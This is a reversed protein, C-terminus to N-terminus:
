DSSYTGSVTGVAAINNYEVIVSSNLERLLDTMDLGPENLSATGPSSPSKLAFVYVTYTHTGSPPYPGVYTYPDASYEGSSVSNKSDSVCWHLWNDASEDIMLIVYNSCGEFPAEWSLAPSLNGHNKGIQKAWVGNSLDASTVEFRPLNEIKPPTTYQKVACLFSAVGLVTAVGWCILLGIAQNKRKKLDSNRALFMVIWRLLFYLGIVYGCASMLSLVIKVTGFVNM